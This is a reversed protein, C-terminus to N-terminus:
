EGRGTRRAHCPKCLGTLNARDWFLDPDGHHKRKHHVDVSPEYTQSGATSCDTCWMEECLVQARLFAWRKTRYWRRVDANSRDAEKPQHQVCRSGGPIALEPCGAAGCPRRPAFPM